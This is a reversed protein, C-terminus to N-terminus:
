KIGKRIESTLESKGAVGSAAIAIGGVTAAGGVVTSIPEAVQPGLWGVAGLIALVGGAGIRAIRESFGMRPNRRHKKKRKWWFRKTALLAVGVLAIGGFVVLAASGGGTAKRIASEDSLRGLVDAVDQEGYNRAADSAESVIESIKKPRALRLAPPVAISAATGPTMALSIAMNRRAEAVLEGSQPNAGRGYALRSAVALWYASLDRAAGATGPPELAVAPVDFEDIGYLPIWAMSKAIQATAGARLTAAAAITGPADFPWAGYGPPPRTATGPFGWGCLHGPPCGAKGQNYYPYTGAADKVWGEVDRVDIGTADEVQKAVRQVARARSNRWILFGVVGGLALVGVGAGAGAVLSKQSKM